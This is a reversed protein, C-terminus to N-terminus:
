RSNKSKIFDYLEEIANKLPPSVLLDEWKYEREMIRAHVFNALGKKYSYNLTGGGSPAEFKRFGNGLKFKNKFYRGLKQKHNRIPFCKDVDEVNCKVEDILYDRLIRDPTMNEIEPVETQVYKFNNKDIKSYREHKEGNFDSDALLFVNSNIFYAEIKDNSIIPAELDNDSRKYKLQNEFNYHILNKGGYEIFSFHLGEEPRFANVNQSDCYAYLFCQLYFRDTIGEVWVTCNSILVSTNFVGLAELTNYENGTFSAINSSREDRRSFVFIECDAPGLLAKSLIHNSHTNIFFRLKKQRIYENESIAAMFINQFGPHLHNEPEDIFLWAGDEATFIPFFLNIISQIGDGLNQISIDELENPLSVIINQDNEGKSQKSVIEIEESQFFTRGIFKEFAVFAKRASGPGSRAFVIKEYLTLGTEISLKSSPNPFHQSVITDLFIDSKTGLLVRSTRLVPIYIISKFCSEFKIDLLTYLYDKIQKLKNCKSECDPIRYYSFEVGLIYSIGFIDTPTFTNESISVCNNSVTSHYITYLLDVTYYMQAIMDLLKAFQEETATAILAKNIQTLSSRLEFFDVQSNQGFYQKIYEFRKLPNSVSHFQLQILKSSLIPEAIDDFLTQSDHYALNLNEPGDIIVKFDQNIINRLFRSKRTNNSGIIINIDKIDELFIADLGGKFFEKNNDAFLLYRM